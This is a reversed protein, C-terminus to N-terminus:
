DIFSWSDAGDFRRVRFREVIAPDAMSMNVAMRPAGQGEGPAALSEWHTTNGCIKCSIFALTRDGHIYRIADDPNYDLRIRDAPAHAWLGGTRRCYSCNCRTLWAPETLLIWRLAGCHCRGEIM